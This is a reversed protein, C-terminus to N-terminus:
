WKVHLLKYLDTYYRCITSFNSNWNQPTQRDCYQYLYLANAGNGGGGCQLYSPLLTTVQSLISTLPSYKALHLIM